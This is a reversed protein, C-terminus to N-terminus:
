SAPAPAPVPDTTKVRFKVKVSRRRDPCSTIARMQRGVKLAAVDLSRYGSSESVRIDRLRKAAPDVLFNLVVDGQEERRRSEDPYYFDPNPAATIKFDCPPPPSLSADSIKCKTIAKSPARAAEGRATALSETARPIVLGEGTIETRGSDDPHNLKLTVRCKITRESTNHVYASSAVCDDANARPEPSAKTGLEIRRDAGTLRCVDSLHNLVVSDWRAEGNEHAEGAVVDQIMTAQRPEDALSAAAGFLAVALTLVRSTGM